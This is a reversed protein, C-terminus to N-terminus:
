GAPEGANVPLVQGSISRSMDSCFFVTADVIDDATVMRKLPSRDIFAARIAEASVGRAAAQGAIVRDIREGEVAVDWRGVGQPTVVDGGRVVLDLM